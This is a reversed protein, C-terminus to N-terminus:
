KGYHQSLIIKLMSSVTINLSKAEQELKKFLEAPLRMTTTKIENNNMNVDGKYCINLKIDLIIIKFYQM